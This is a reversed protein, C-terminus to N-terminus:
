FGGNALLGILLVGVFVIIAMAIAFKRDEKEMKKILKEVETM